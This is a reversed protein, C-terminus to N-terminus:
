YLWRVVSWLRERLREVEGSLLYVVKVLLVHEKYTAWV